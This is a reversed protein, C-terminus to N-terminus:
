PNACQSVPECKLLKQVYTDLVASVGKVELNAGLLKQILQDAAEGFPRRQPGSPDLMADKLRYFLPSLSYTLRGPILIVQPM